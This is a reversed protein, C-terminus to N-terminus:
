ANKRKKDKYLKVAACAGAAILLVAFRKNRRMRKEIRDIRIELTDNM